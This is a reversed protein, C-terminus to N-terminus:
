VSTAIKYVVNLLSIPRWKKLYINGLNTGKLYVYLLAKKKHLHCKVKILVMM